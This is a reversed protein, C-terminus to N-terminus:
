YSPSVIIASRCSAIVAYDNFGLGIAGSDLEGTASDYITTPTVGDGEYARVFSYGAPIPLTVKTNLAITTGKNEVKSWWM